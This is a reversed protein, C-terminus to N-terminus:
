AAKKWSKIYMIVSSLRYKILKKYLQDSKTSPQYYDIYKKTEKHQLIENIYKKKEATSLESKYYLLNNICYQIGVVLNNAMTQKIKNKGYGWKVLFPKIAHHKSLILEFSDKHYSKILTPVERSIYHYFCDEIMVVTNAKQYARANFLMDEVLSIGQDYRLKYYDIFIKSYIKNWAYGLLGMLDGNLKPAKETGIDFKYDEPKTPHRKLLQGQQDEQDLFYGFVYIDVPNIQIKNYISELLDNEIWDDSDMFYLYSGKAHEIGFNRADSLGGNEKNYLKVRSDLASYDKALAASNDPSGDNIILLEFNEFSQNLVSEVAKAIYQEVKYAPMIVSFFPNNM